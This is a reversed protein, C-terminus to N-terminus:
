AAGHRVRALPMYRRGRLAAAISGFAPVMATIAFTAVAWGWNDLVGTLRLVWIAGVTVASSALLWPTARVTLWLPRLADVVIGNPNTGIAIASLAVSMSTVQTLNPLLNALTPGGLFAGVFVASGISRVGGVVAALLIAVGALFEFQGTSASRLGMAYIAGGLGAFAASVMFVSLTTTRLNMGISTCAVPSDRLALLRDGYRSRRIAVVVLASIAFAVAGAIFFAQDGALDLPGFRPRRLTLSGTQFLSVRHGFVTFSPLQFIWRDLAVAFAATALALYIGSLRLAPLAVLAGVAAAALPAIVLAMPSGHAGLHAAVVAGIGAFSLQCLSLKGAYGVLPVMSLAIIALGWMKDINFLDGRSLVTSLVITAMIVAACLGLTGNWTPRPTLEQLRQAPASRPRRGGLVLLAVLLVAAPTVGLLGRLYQQGTAIKPLYGIAYDNLLGLMIAGIFTLPLSRLRGIVAAAYANVILLTLPLPSLSLKPAVLIGALAALMTGIVWALRTSRSPRAGTLLALDSDDVTARMAVGARTRYLVARLGVAVAAAVCLVFVDNCSIRVLGLEVVKGSWLPRVSRAVGPKWVWLAFSLLGLMLAVTVVLKTAESAGRLRRMISREVALGTLPAAIGVVIVIALATPVGWAYRLQWYAFAAVMGVAGHAFNFVGTTTYTLTLGSATIAYIGGTTLGSVTFLILERM